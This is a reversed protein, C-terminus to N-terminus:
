TKKLANNKLLENFVHQSSLHFIYLDIADQAHVVTHYSFGAAQLKEYLPFPQRRHKVLLCEHVTLKALQEIIVKMPEPPALDSVDVSVFQLSSESV